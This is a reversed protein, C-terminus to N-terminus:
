LIAGELSVGNFEVVLDSASTRSIIVHVWYLNDNMNINRCVSRGQQWPGQQNSTVRCVENLNGNSKSFSMLKAVVQFNEGAGDPDQYFLKLVTGDGSTVGPNFSTVPCSFELPSTGSKYKVRGAQTVTWYQQAQITADTPICGGGNSQWYVFGVDQKSSPSATVRQMLLPSLGVLLAIAVLLISQFKM